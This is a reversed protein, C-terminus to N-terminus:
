KSLKTVNVVKWENKNHQMTTFKFTEYTELNLLKYSNFSEATALYKTKRNFGYVDLKKIIGQDACTKIEDQKDNQFCSILRVVAEYPSKRLKFNKLIFRDGTRSILMDYKINPGVFSETIFSVFPYYVLKIDNLTDGTFDDIKDLKYYGGNIPLDQTRMAGQIDDRVAKDQLLNWIKSWSNGQKKLISIDNINNLEKRNSLLYELAIVQDPYKKSAKIAFIIEDHEASLKYIKPENNEEWYILSIWSNMEKINSVVIKKDKDIAFVVSGEPLKLQKKLYANMGRKQFKDYTTQDLNNAYFLAAKNLLKWGQITKGNGALKKGRAVLVEINKKAAIDNVSSKCAIPFMLVFFLLAAFIIRHAKNM